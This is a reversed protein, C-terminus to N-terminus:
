KCEAVLMEARKHGWNPSLENITKFAAFKEMATNLEPKATRCGGGFQEPTYRLSQGKLLYPRPNAPDQEKAKVLLEDSLPGYEMYRQMPNVMLRLTAIMSKVATIESNAPQLSDARNILETANDAIADNGSPDKQMFAFNVRCYAAYYFPLWQNKEASGIREFTNALSLFADPKSFASDIMTINKKMASLYKENQAFVTVSIITVSLLLIIKKM